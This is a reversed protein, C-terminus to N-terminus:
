YTFLWAHKNCCNETYLYQPSLGPLHQHLANQEKYTALLTFFIITTYMYIHCPLNTCTVTGVLLFAFCHLKTYKYTYILLSFSPPNYWIFQVFLCSFLTIHLFLWNIQNSSTHPHSKSQVRATNKLIREQNQLIRKQNKLIMEQTTSTILSHVLRHSFTHIPSTQEMLWPMYMYM